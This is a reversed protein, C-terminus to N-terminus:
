AGCTVIGVTYVQGEETSENKCCYLEKLYYIIKLSIIKKQTMYTISIENDISVPCTANGGTNHDHSLM